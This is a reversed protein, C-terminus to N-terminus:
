QEEFHIVTEGPRVFRLQQRAVAEVYAPDERLRRTEEYLRQNETRLALVEAKLQAQQAKLEAWRLLGPGFLFALVAGIVLGILLTKKPEM